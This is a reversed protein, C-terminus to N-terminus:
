TREGSVTRPLHQSGGTGRPFGLTQLHLRSGRSGWHDLVPGQRGALGKESWKGKHALPLMKLFYVNM